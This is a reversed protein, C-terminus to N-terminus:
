LQMHYHSIRYIAILPNPLIYQDASKIETITVIDNLKNKKVINGLKILIKLM